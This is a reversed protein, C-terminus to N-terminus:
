MAETMSRRRASSKIKEIRYNKELSLRLRSIFDTDRWSGNCLHIMRSNATAQDIGPAFFESEYLHIGHKLLQEENKYKFGYKKAIMAYIHPALMSTSFEGDENVFRRSKYYEMCERVFPHHPTSGMIAAQIAVGPIMDKDTNGAADVDKKYPEFLEHYYEVSSFFDNNLFEDPSALMLVDSDLYIGGEKELIYLRLYDCAFAWKKCEIAEQVFDPLEEPAFDPMTWKKIEYDPAYERWSRLCKKAIRNLPNDSLWIYHIKKPIM